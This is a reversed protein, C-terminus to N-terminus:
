LWQPQRVGPPVCRHAKGRWGSGPVVGWLPGNRLQLSTYLAPRLFFVNNGPFRKLLRVLWSLVLSVLSACDPGKNQLVGAAGTNADGRSLEAPKEQRGRQGGAEEARM